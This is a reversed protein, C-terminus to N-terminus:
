QATRVANVGIWLAIIINPQLDPFKEHVAMLAPHMTEHEDHAKEMAYGAQVLQHDRSLDAIKIAECNCKKDSM